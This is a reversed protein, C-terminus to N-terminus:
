GECQCFFNLMIHVRSLSFIILVYVKKGKFTVKGVPSDDEFGSLLGGVDSDYEM